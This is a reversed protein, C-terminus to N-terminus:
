SSCPLVEALRPFHEVANVKLMKAGFVSHSTYRSDSSLFSLVYNTTQFTTRAKSNTSLKYDYLSAKPLPLWTEKNNASDLVTELTCTQLYEVFTQPCFAIYRIPLEPALRQSMLEYVLLPVGSSFIRAMCNKVLPASWTAM